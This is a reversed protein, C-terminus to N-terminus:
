NRPFRMGSYLSAIAPDRDLSENEGSYTIPTPNGAPPHSGAPGSAMGPRHRAGYGGASSRDVYRTTTFNVIIKCNSIEWNMFKKQDGPMM